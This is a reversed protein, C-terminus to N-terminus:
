RHKKSYRLEAVGADEIKRAFREYAAQYRVVDGSQARPDVGDYDKVATQTKDPHPM